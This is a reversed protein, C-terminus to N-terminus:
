YDSRFQEEIREVYDQLGLGQADINRTRRIEGEDLAVSSKCDKEGRREGGLVLHPVGCVHGVM